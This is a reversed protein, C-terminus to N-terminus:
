VTDPTKECDRGKSPDRFPRQSQLASQCAQVDGALKAANAAKLLEQLFIKEPPTIAPNSLAGEANRILTDCSDAAAPTALAMALLCIAIGLRM